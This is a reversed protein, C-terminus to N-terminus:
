GEPGRPIVIRYDEHFAGSLIAHSGAPSGIFLGDRIVKRLRAATPAAQARAVAPTKAAISPACGLSWAMARLRSSLATLRPVISDALKAATTLRTAGLMTLTVTWITGRLAA